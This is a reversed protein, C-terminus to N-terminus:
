NTNADHSYFYHSNNEGIGTAGLFIPAMICHIVVGIFLINVSVRNLSHGMRLPKSGYRIFVWKVSYFLFILNFLSFLMTIPFPCGYLFAFISITQISAYVHEM